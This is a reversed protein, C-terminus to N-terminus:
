KDLQPLDDSYIEIHYLGDESRKNPLIIGRAVPDGEWIISVNKSTKMKSKKETRLVAPKPSFTHSESIGNEVLNAYLSGKLKNKRAKNSPDFVIMEVFEDTDFTDHTDLYKIARAKYTGANEEPPTDHKDNAWNIVSRVAKRTWYADNERLQVGLFNLFYDAIDNSRQAALVDWKFTNSVDILAVKQIAHKSEIFTNLIEKLIAKKGETSNITEWQIVTTHDMKILSLLKCKRGNTIVSILAVILVGDSVNGKHHKYFSKTIDKSVDVFDNGNKVIKETWQQLQPQVDGSNFFVYQTGNSSEKIRQKFFNTEKIGIEVEYLYEPEPLSKIIIHFIFREIQLSEKEAKTLSSEKYMAGGYNHHPKWM